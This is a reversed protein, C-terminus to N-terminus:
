AWEWRYGSEASVIRGWGPFPSHTYLLIANTDAVEDLLRQRSQRM